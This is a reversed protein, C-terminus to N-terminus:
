KINTIKEIQSYFDPNSIAVSESDKLTGGQPLLMSLVSFAMAIRHDGFSAFQPNLNKLEGSFSFGDNKESVEVGLSKLNYCISKIRDSEKYRLESCNTVNFEGSAFLGAIALAPIEDIINPILEKPIFINKLESSKVVIDGYPENGSERLNEYCINAKMAELIKLYGIRTPNLSVNKLILESNKSLLALVIFFAASSIDGPIFYEKPSPYYDKSAFIRKEKESVEQKLGLMRETHDRTFQNEIVSSEEELHLAAILISGKVQASPVELKYYINKLKESPTIVIPLTNQESSKINAGINELPEIIRKMPRVSLSADGILKSSFNQVSLLGSLLRASTGSNGCDLPESPSSFGKFGKGKILVGNKDRLFEVGLKALINITSKVDEGFSLNQIYSKGNAMSSFIVARHSISKDGGFELEGKVSNIKQFVKTM